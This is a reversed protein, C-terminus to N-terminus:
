LSASARGKLRTTIKNILKEWMDASLAQMKVKREEGWLCDREDESLPWLRCNKMSVVSPSERSVIVGAYWTTLSVLIVLMLM